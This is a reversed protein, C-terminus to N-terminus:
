TTAIPLTERWVRVESARCVRQRDFTHLAYTGLCTTLVVDAVLLLRLPIGCGVIFTFGDKSDGGVDIVTGHMFEVKPWEGISYLRTHSRHHARVVANVLRVAALVGLQEVTNEFALKPELAVDHTVPTGCM